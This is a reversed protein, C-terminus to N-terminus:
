YAAPLGQIYQTRVADLATQDLYIGAELQIADVYAEIVDNQLSSLYQQRFQDVIPQNSEEAQDFPSIRYLDVVAVGGEASVMFAEQEERDFVARHIEPPVDEPEQNRYVDKTIRPSLGILRMGEDDQVRAVIGPAKEELLRIREREKWAAIARERVEDLSQLRPEQTEDLRLAFLGGDPLQLLEPFDGEAAQEAALRFAEYGAMGEETESHFDIQGIEMATEQAVEELTAGAALLDDIEETQELIIERAKRAALEERLQERAEDFSSTTAELIESVQFLAPGFDSELPGAVGPEELAFLAETIEEPLDGERIEGLQIDEMELGRLEVLREFDASGDDFSAKASEADEQSPFALQAVVRREPQNFEGERESYAERLEDESIEVKESLSDPLVAAFTIKRIEPTTFEEPSETHFTELQSITPEPIAEVLALQDQWAQTARDKVDKDEISQLRPEQIGGLRLAFIGGDALELLAPPDGVAAQDAAMRFEEYDAISGEKIDSHYDIQGLAMRTKEAIEALTAGAALLSEAKGSQELLIERTKEEIMDARLQERAEEFTPLRESLAAIVRFLGPGSATEIPGVVGPEELAFVADTIEAPPDDKRFELAPIHHTDSSKREVLQDFDASGEDISARASEADELSPFHLQEVIRREPLRIEDEREAYAESLEDESVSVRARLYRPLLAAYTIKRTEPTSFSEPNAEIFSQLEEDGPWAMEDMILRNPIWSWEYSRQQGLHGLIADLYAGEPNLGGAVMQVLQARAASKRVVEDYESSTYGLRELMFEYAGQDFRAGPGQFLPSELLERQVREDGASIGMLNAENDMAANSVVQELAITDIGFELAQPLTLSQGVAQSIRQLQQQLAGTYAEYSIPEDGVKGITRITGGLGGIGFGALGVILLGLLIWVLINTPKKYSKDKAM